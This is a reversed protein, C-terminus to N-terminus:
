KMAFLSAISGFLEFRTLYINYHFSSGSWQEDQIYLIYRYYKNNKINEFRHQKYDGLLDKNNIRRDIIEWHNHDNSGVIRWSKPYFSRRTRITYSTLNIANNIFDFEIWADKTGPNYKWYNYYFENNISNSNYKILNTIPYSPDHSGGGSIKLINRAELDPGFQKQLFDIIGTLENGDYECEKGEREFKKKNKIAELANFFHYRLTFIIRSMESEIIEDDLNEYIFDIMDEDYEEVDLSLLFHMVTGVEMEFVLSAFIDGIEGEKKIEGNERHSIYADIIKNIIGEDINRMESSLIFEKFHGSLYEISRSHFETNLLSIAEEQSKVNYRLENEKDNDGNLITTIISYIMRKGQNIQAKNFPSKILLKLIENIEEKEYKIIQSKFQKPLNIFYENITPDVRFIDNIKKSIVRAVNKTTKLIIEDYKEKINNEKEGEKQSCKLKKSNKDSIAFNVIIKFEESDDYEILRKFCSLSDEWEM